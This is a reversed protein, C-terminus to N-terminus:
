WICPLLITPQKGLFLLGEWVEKRLHSKMETRESQLPMNIFFISIANIFYSFSDTLFAIAASFTQYLFGGLAPGILLAINDAMSSQALAAPLQKQSVVRPFAAFRALNAFVFFSGEILGVIIVNIQDNM